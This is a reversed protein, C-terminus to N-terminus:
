QSLLITHHKIAKKKKMETALQHNVSGDHVHMPEIHMVGEELEMGINNSWGGYEQCGLYFILRTPQFMKYFDAM